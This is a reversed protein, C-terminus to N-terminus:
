NQQTPTVQIATSALASKFDQELALVQPGQPAVNGTSSAANKNELTMLHMRFEKFMPHRVSYEQEQLVVQRGVRKKLHFVLPAKLNATMEAVNNPITLITFVVANENSSTPLTNNRTHPDDFQLARSEQPSLKVCYEAKFIKPELIPFSIRPDELAHLWLLLTDDGPDVICFQRLHEFGFLGEPLTIIDSVGVQLWGFRASNLRLTGPKLTQESQSRSVGTDKSKEADSANAM